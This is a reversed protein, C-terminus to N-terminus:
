KLYAHIMYEELMRQTHFYSANISICNRQILAWQEPHNVFTNIITEDLKKYVDKMQIPTCVLDNCDTGIAWGTVDEVCGELWWGDLTSFNPIGNLSAKMGSTGSAELPLIPNNLWLDVGSVMLQSVQISYNTLLVIKLLSSTQKSKQYIEALIKEGEEDDPHAKGSFVLQLGSYKQAIEELKQFDSFILNARKYSTMRRAFGITFVNPDLTQNNEQQIYALLKEKATKHAHTIETLPISQALKLNNPTDRWDMIYKDFVESMCHSAWFGPHIGNTIGTIDYEPYMQSTVLNHKQSVGNAFKSVFLALTTMNLLDNQFLHQPLYKYYQGL